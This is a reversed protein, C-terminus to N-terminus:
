GLIEDTDGRGTDAKSSCSTLVYLLFPHHLAGVPRTHQPPPPTEQFVHVRVKPPAPLVTAPGHRLLLADHGRLMEFTLQPDNM